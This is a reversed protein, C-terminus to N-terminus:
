NELLDNLDDDESTDDDFEPTADDAGDAGPGKDKPAHAQAIDEEQPATGGRPKRAAKRRAELDAQEGATAVPLSEIMEVVDERSVEDNIKNAWDMAKAKDESSPRYDELIYGFNRRKRIDSVKGVTTQYKVALAGDTTDEPEEFRILYVMPLPIRGRIIDAKQTEEAKQTKNTM